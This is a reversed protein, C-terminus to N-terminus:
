GHSRITPREAQRRSSPLPGAARFLSVDVCLEGAVRLPDALTNPHRLLVCLVRAGLHM